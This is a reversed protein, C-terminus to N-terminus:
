VDIVNGGYGDDYPGGGRGIVQVAFRRRLWRRVLARVPPLLLVIGAADTVFGPTMLLVGGTLVLAGDIMEKGPIEGRDLRTRVREIVAFGQHKALWAGLLSILLLLGITNLVGLVHSVQVIVYLEILPVVIFVLAIVALV